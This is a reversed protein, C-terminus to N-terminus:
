EEVIPVDIFYYRHKEYLNAHPIGRDKLRQIASEQEEILSTIKSEAKTKDLYAGIYEEYIGTDSFMSDSEEIVIYVKRM